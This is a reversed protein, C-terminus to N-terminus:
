HGKWKKGKMALELCERVDGLILGATDRWGLPGNDARPIKNYYNRLIELNSSFLVLSKMGPDNGEYIRAM